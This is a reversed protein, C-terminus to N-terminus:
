ERVRIFNSDCVEQEHEEKELLTWSGGLNNESIDPPKEEDVSDKVVEEVGSM